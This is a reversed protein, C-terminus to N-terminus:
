LSEEASTDSLKTSSVEDLLDLLELVLKTIGPDKTLSVGDLLDPLELVLKITCSEKTLSVDDLLDLLKFGLITTGLEKTLSDLLMRELRFERELALM